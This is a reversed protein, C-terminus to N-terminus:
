SFNHHVAPRVSRCVDCVLQWRRIYSTKFLSDFLAGLTSPWVSKHLSIVEAMDEYTRYLFTTRELEAVEIWCAQVAAVSVQQVLVVPLHCHAEALPCRLLQLSQTLDELM